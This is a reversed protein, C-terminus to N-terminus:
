WKTRPRPAPTPERTAAPAPRAKPLCQADAALRLHTDSGREVAVCDGVRLGAEDTVVTTTSGGM